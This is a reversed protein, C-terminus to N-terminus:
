TTSEYFTILSMTGGVATKRMVCELLKEIAVPVGSTATRSKTSEIFSAFGRSSAILTNVVSGLLTNSVAKIEGAFKPTVFGM